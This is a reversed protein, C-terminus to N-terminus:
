GWRFRRFSSTYRMHSSGWNGMAALVNLSTIMQARSCLYLWIWYHRVELNSCYMGSPMLFYHHEMAWSDFSAFELLTYRYMCDRNHYQVFIFWGKLVEWSRCTFMILVHIILIFLLLAGFVDINIEGGTYLM